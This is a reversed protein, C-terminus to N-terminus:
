CQTINEPLVKTSPQKDTQEVFNDPMDLFKATNMTFRVRIQQSYVNTRFFFSHFVHIDSLVLTLIFM